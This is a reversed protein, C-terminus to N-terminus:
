QGITVLPLTGYSDPGLQSINKEQSAPYKSLADEQSLTAGAPVLADIIRTHNTDDPAGGISWETAARSVDRVRRVGAAPNNEQGLVAIAYGWQTPDGDGLAALPVKITVSGTPNVEVKVQTGAQATFAGQGNSTLVQQNWGEVWLVYEWGDSQPLAANRGELLRREGTSKGPDQDIYIDFTQVSLGLPSNWANDVTGSIGIHFVLDTDVLAINVHKLDFMGPQFVASTPYTYTGPGHDDNVPDDFSGIVQESSTVDVSSNLLPMQVLGNSPFSSMAQGNRMVVVVMKLDANAPLGGLAKIPAALELVKGVAAGSATVIPTGQWGGSTDAAYLAASASGDTELSWELLHTASMGLASRVEGDGALRTFASSDTTDPKALYIGVRIPQAADIGSALSSWDDQADV